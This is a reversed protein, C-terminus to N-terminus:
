RFPCRYVATGTRAVWVLAGGAEAAVGLTFGTGDLALGRRALDAVAVDSDRFAMPLDPTRRREEKWVRGLRAYRVKGEAVGQALRAMLDATAPAILVLDAWRALEIHGMAAEAAADWLSTRVPLGSVAQFSQAGVFRQANDTMAVQVRAGADRLRRVLEVAKYAAIGGSVCLLVRRGPLGAPAAAHTPAATM